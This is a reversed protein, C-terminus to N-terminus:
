LQIYRYGSGQHGAVVFGYNVPDAGLCQLLDYWDIPTFYRDSINTWTSCSDVSQWVGATYTSGSNTSVWGYIYVAPYTQGSASAGLAFDWVERITYSANSVDNWSSGGDTSRYFLQNHPWNANPEGGSGSIGSTFFLHGANSPVAKLKSNNGGDITNASRLSWTAGGDMSRWTGNNTGLPQIAASNQLYFAGNVRDAAVIHRSESLSFGWGPANGTDIFDGLGVNVKVNGSLTITNTSFSSVTLGSFAGSTTLDTLAQGNTIGNTANVHLVNSATTTTATTTLIRLPVGSIIIQNWTNGGDTTYFADGNAQQVKVWNLPTAAAIGSSSFGQSMLTNNFWATFNSGGDRSVGGGGDTDVVITSPHSSAYDAGYGRNIFHGAQTDWAQTKVFQDPNQSQLTAIDWSILLPKHNPPILVVDAVLEEIGQTMSTFTQGSQANTNMPTNTFLVGQLCGMIITGTQSPDFQAAILEVNSVANPIFNGMYPVDNAVINPTINNQGTFSWTGGSYTGEVYGNNGSVPSTFIVLHNANAPDPCISTYGSNSPMVATTVLPTWTSGSLQWANTGDAVYVRGDAGVRVDVISTPTGSVLSFSGSPTSRKYLGTGSVALYCVNTKGSTTGSTPDFVIISINNGDPSAPGTIKSFTASAGSTGNTTEWLGGTNDTTVIVHDANAPDVAMKNPYVRYSGNNPDMGLASFGTQTWTQGQNTSIWVLNDYCMYFTQTNTPAIKIEYCGLSVQLNTLAPISSTTILQQWTKTTRNFLYAGMVDCRAVLTGDSMADFGIVLGGGGVRLPKWGASPVKNAGVFGTM